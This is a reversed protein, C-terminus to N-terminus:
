VKCGLSAFGEGSHPARLSSSLVLVNFTLVGALDLAEGLLGEGLLAKSLM